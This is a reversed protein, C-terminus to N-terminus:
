CLSFPVKGNLKLSDQNVSVRMITYDLVFDSLFPTLADGKKWGNTTPFMDPLYKGVWVRSYTENLCKEIQRILKM